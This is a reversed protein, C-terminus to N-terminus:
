FSSFDIIENKITDPIPDMLGLVYDSNNLMSLDSKISEYTEERTTRERILTESNFDVYFRTDWIRFLVGDVRLFFRMLIFIGTNMVRIKYTLSSCGNDGLDDEFLTNKDFFLLPELVQLKAYDISFHTKKFDLMVPSGAYPTSFTWDFPNIVKIDPNKALRTKEWLESAPVKIENVYGMGKKVLKLADSARLSYSFGSKIHKIVLFSNGFIMEPIRIGLEESLDDIEPATLIPKHCSQVVWDNIMIGYSDKDEFKKYTLDM